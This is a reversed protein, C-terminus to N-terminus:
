RHRIKSRTGRLLVRVRWAARRILNRDLRNMTDFAAWPNEAFLKRVSGKKGAGGPRASRCVDGVGDKTLVSHRHIIFLARHRCDTTSMGESKRIAGNALAACIGRLSTRPKCRCCKRTTRMIWNGWCQERQRIWRSGSRRKFMALEPGIESNDDFIFDVRGAWGKSAHVRAIASVIAQISAYYPRLDFPAVPRLIADFQNLSMHCSVSWPSTHEIVDALAAVKARRADPTWGKFQGSLNEAEAMRFYQLPPEADLTRQWEKSFADWAELTQVYGALVLERLDVDSKSDDIFAKFV